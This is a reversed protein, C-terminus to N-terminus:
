YDGFATPKLLKQWSTQKGFAQPSAVMAQGSEGAMAPSNLAGNSLGSAGGSPDFGGMQQGMALGAVGGQLGGGLATPAGFRQQMPNQKSWSSYRTSEAAALNHRKQDKQAQNGQIAGLAGMALMPAWFM